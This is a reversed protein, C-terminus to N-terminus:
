SVKGKSRQHNMVRAIQQNQKKINKNRATNIDVQNKKELDELPADAYLRCFLGRLM